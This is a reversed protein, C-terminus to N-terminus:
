WVHPPPTPSWTRRMPRGLDAQMADKLALLDADCGPLGVHLNPGVDVVHWMRQLRGDRLLLHIARRVSEYISPTAPPLSSITVHGHISDAPLRWGLARSIDSATPMLTRERAVGVQIVRAETHLSAPMPRQYRWLYIREDTSDLAMQRAAQVFALVYREVRGHGRSMAM